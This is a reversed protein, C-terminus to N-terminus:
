EMWKLFDIDFHRCETSFIDDAYAAVSQQTECNQKDFLIDLARQENSLSGSSHNSKRLDEVTSSTTSAVSAESFDPCVANYEFIQERLSNLYQQYQEKYRRGKTCFSPICARKRQQTTFDISSSTADKLDQRMAAVTRKKKMNSESSKMDNEGATRETADHKPTMGVASNEEEIEKVIRRSMDSEDMFKLLRRCHYDHLKQHPELPNTLM